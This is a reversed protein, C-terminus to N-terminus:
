WGDYDAGGAAEGVHADGAGPVMREGGAAEQEEGGEGVAEATGGGGGRGAAVGADGVEGVADEDEVGCLAAFGCCEALLGEGGGLGDVGEGGGVVGVEDGEAGLGDGRVVRGGEQCASGPGAGPRAGGGLEQVVWFCVFRGDELGTGLASRCGWIAFACYDQGDGFDGFDCNLCDGRGAASFIDM